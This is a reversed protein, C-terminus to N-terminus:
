AMHVAHVSSLHGHDSLSSLLDVEASWTLKPPFANAAATLLVHDFLSSLLNAGASWTLKPPSANAAATLLILYLCDSM